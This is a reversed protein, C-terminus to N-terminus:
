EDDVRFPGVVLDVPLPAGPSARILLSAESYEDPEFARKNSDIFDEWEIHDAVWGTGQAPIAHVYETEGKESRAIVVLDVAAKQDAMKFWITMGDFYRWRAIDKFDWRLQAGASGLKASVARSINTKPPGEMVLSYSAGGVLGCGPKGDFEELYVPMGVFPPTSAPWAFEGEDLSGASFGAAKFALPSDGGESCRWVIRVSPHQSPKFPAGAHSFLGFPIFIQRAAPDRTSIKYGYAEGTSADTIELDVYRSTGDPQYLFGLGASKEWEKTNLPSSEVEGDGGPSFALNIALVPNKEVRISSLSLVASKGSSKWELGKSIRLAPHYPTYAFLAAGALAGSLIASLKCCSRPM